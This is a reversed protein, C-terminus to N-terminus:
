LLSVTPDGMLITIEDLSSSALPKNDPWSEGGHTHPWHNGLRHRPHVGRLQDRPHDCVPRRRRVMVPGPHLICMRIVDGGCYLANVHVSTILIHMRRGSMMLVHSHVTPIASSHNCDVTRRLVVCSRAEPVVKVPLCIELIVLTPEQQFEAIISHNHPGSDM